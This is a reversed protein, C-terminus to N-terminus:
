SVFVVFNDSTNCPNNIMSAILGPVLLICTKSEYIEDIIIFHYVGQETSNFFPSFSLSHFRQLARHSECVQVVLSHQNFTKVLQSSHRCDVIIRVIRCLHLSHSVGFVLIPVLELYINRISYWFLM